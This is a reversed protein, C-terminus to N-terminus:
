DMGWGGAFGATSLPKLYLKGMLSDFESFDLQQDNDSKANAPDPHVEIILGDAGLAMAACSMPMVWESKGTSHSPDAIVPLHCLQKAELIAALDLTNRGAGNATRIGRECLVVNPNGQHLIYEAALLWEKVSANPGRKLLIPKDIQGLKKLLSFNQMNRAGVQLMDAYEAILNIDQESLIETVVPLGTAERADSLLKLGLEGLGQFDYPSTRPKYAGGRLLNAGSRKVAHAAALIQEKSEVACPGAIITPQQGGISVSGVRIVTGVQDPKRQALLYPLPNTM